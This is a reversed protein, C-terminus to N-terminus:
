DFAPRGGDAGLMTMMMMMMRGMGRIFFGPM